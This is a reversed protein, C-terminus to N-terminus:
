SLNFLCILCKYWSTRTYAGIARLLLRLCCRGYLDPHLNGMSEMDACTGLDLPIRVNGGFSVVAALPTAGLHFPTSKDVESKKSSM